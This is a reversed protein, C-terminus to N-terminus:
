TEELLLPRVRGWNNWVDVLGDARQGLMDVMEALTLDGAASALYEDAAVEVGQFLETTQHETPWVRVRMPDLGAYGVALSMDRQSPRREDVWGGLGDFRYGLSALARAIDRNQELSYPGWFEHEHPFRLFGHEIADALIADLLGAIALKWRREEDASGEALRAVLSEMSSPDGRLLRFIRPASGGQLALGLAEDVVDDTEIPAPRPAPRTATTGTAQREDCEAVATRAELCAAEAMQAAVRTADAELSLRDITLGVATAAAREREATIAAGATERNIRNIDQLWQRAADDAEPSGQRRTANRFARQADEKLRRVEHPHSAASAAEANATHTDYARQAQRLADAAATSQVHARAAVECREDALRREDSCPGSYTKPATPAAAPARAGATAAVAAPAVPPDLLAVGSTAPSGSRELSDAM